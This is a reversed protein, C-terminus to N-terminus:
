TPAHSSSKKMSPAPFSTLKIDFGTIPPKIEPTHQVTIRMCTGFSKPPVAPVPSSNSSRSCIILSSGTNLRGEKIRPIMVSATTSVAFRMQGLNGIATTMIAKPARKEYKAGISRKPMTQREATSVPSGRNENGLRNATWKVSAIPALRETATTMIACVNSASFM